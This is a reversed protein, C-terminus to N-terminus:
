KNLDHMLAGLACIKCELFCLFMFIGLVVLGGVGWVFMRCVRGGTKRKWRWEGEGVERGVGEGVGRGGARARELLAYSKYLVKLLPRM